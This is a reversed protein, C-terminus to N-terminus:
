GLHVLRARGAARRRIWHAVPAARRGVAIVLRPWPPALPDSRARALGLPAGYALAGSALAGSALLNPVRYLGNYALRKVAFPQGLAQDLARALALVQANDGPKDGVLAWVDPAAGM